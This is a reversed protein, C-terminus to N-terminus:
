VSQLDIGGRWDDHFHQFVSAPHIASRMVAWLLMVFSNLPLLLLSPHIGQDDYYRADAFM